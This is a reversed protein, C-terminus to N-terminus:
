AKKFRTKLVTLKHAVTQDSEHGPVRVKSGGIVSQDVIPALSVSSAGLQTAVHAEIAKKAADTLEFATTVTGVVVGKSAMIVEVDRVILELEKTRRTEVLFAALEQVAQETKNDLVLGAVYTALKRRSLRQPM